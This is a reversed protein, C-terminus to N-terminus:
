EFTPGFSDDVVTMLYDKLQKNNTFQSLDLAGPQRSEPGPSGAALKALEALEMASAQETVVTETGQQSPAPSPTEAPAPQSPKMYSFREAISKLDEPKNLGKAKAYTLVDDRQDETLTGLGADYIALKQSLDVLSGKLDGNEALASELKARLGKPSQDEAETGAIEAPDAM